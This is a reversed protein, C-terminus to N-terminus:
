GARRAFEGYFHREAECRAEIAAERSDFRGLKVNKGNVGIEAGWLLDNIPHVGVKGSTNRSCKGRNRANEAPTCLRLNAWRDDDRVGNIHDIVMGAPPLEGTMFLWILHSAKYPWYDVFIIRYGQSLTGAIDGIKCGGRAVRHRIIGTGPECIHLELLRERTLEPRGKARMKRVRDAKTAKRPESQKEMAPANNESCELAGVLALSNLAGAKGGPNEIRADPRM